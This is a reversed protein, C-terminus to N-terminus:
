CLSGGKEANAAINVFIILFLMTITWQFGAVLSTGVYLLILVNQIPKKPNGRFKDICYLSSLLNIAFTTKGNGMHRIAADAAAMLLLGLLFLAISGLLLGGYGFENLWIELIDQCCPYGPANESFEELYEAFQQRRSPIFRFIGYQATAAFFSFKSVM